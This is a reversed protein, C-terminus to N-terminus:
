PMMDRDISQYNELYERTLQRKAFKADEAFTMSEQWNLEARETDKLVAGPLLAWDDIEFEYEGDLLQKEFQPGFGREEIEELNQSFDKYIGIKLSHVCIYCLYILMHYSPKWAYFGFFVELTDGAQIVKRLVEFVANVPTRRKNVTKLRTVIGSKTPEFYANLWIFVREDRLFLYHLAIQLYKLKEQDADINTIVQIFEEHTPNEEQLEFLVEEYSDRIDEESLYGDGLTYKYDTLIHARSKLSNSLSYILSFIQTFPIDKFTRGAPLWNNMHFLVSLVLDPNSPGIDKYAVTALTLFLKKYANSDIEHLRWIETAAYLAKITKSKRIYVELANQMNLLTFTKDEDNSPDASYTYFSRGVKRMGGLSGTLGLNARREAFKRETITTRKKEETIVKRTPFSVDGEGGPALEYFTIPQTNFIELDYNNMPSDEDIRIVQQLKERLPWGTKPEVKKTKNSLYLDLKECALQRRHDNEERDEKRMCITQMVASVSKDIIDFWAPIGKKSFQGGFYFLTETSQLDTLIASAATANYSKPKNQPGVVFFTGHKLNIYIYQMGISTHGLIYMNIIEQLINQGQKQLNRMAKTHGAGNKTLETLGASFPLVDTGISIKVEYRVKGVTIKQLRVNTYDTDKYPNPYVLFANKKSDAVRALAILELESGAGILLNTTELTNSLHAMDPLSTNLSNFPGRFMYDNIAWNYPDYFKMKLSARSHNTLVANGIVWELTVGSFDVETRETYWIVSSNGPAPLGTPRANLREMVAQKNYKSFSM